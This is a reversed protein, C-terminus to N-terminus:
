EAKAVQFKNIQLISYFSGIAMIGLIVFMLVSFSYQELLYGSIYVISFTGIRVVFSELSLVSARVKQSINDNIDVSFKTELFGRMFHVLFLGAISIAIFGTVGMLFLSITFILMGARATIEPLKRYALTGFAILLLSIGGLIGWTEIDLGLEIFLPNYFWKLNFCFSTVLSSVILLHFLHKNSLAHRLGEKATSFINGPIKEYTHKKVSLLFLAAVLFFIFSLYFPYKLDISGLWGGASLAAASVLTSYIQVQSMDHKFNKSVSHLLARDSGSMLAAGLAYALHFAIIQWLHVAFTLFLLSFAVIIYGWFVSIKHSFYDGIVGTPYELLASTIYYLGIIQFIQQQTFNKSLLYIVIVIIWFRASGLIMSIKVKSLDTM